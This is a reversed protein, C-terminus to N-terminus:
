YIDAERHGWVDLKGVEGGVRGAEGAAIYARGINCTYKRRRKVSRTKNVVKYTNTSSAVRFKVPTKRANFPFTNRTLLIIIVNHRTPYDYLRKL